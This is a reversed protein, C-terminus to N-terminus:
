HSKGLDHLKFITLEIEIKVITIYNSVITGGFRHTLLRDTMKIFKIM